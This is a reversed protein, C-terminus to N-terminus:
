NLYFLIFFLFFLFIFFLFFFMVGALVPALLESSAAPAILDRPLFQLTVKAQRRVPELLRPSSVEGDKKKKKAHEM